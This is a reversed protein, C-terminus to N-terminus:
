FVPWLKRIVLGGVFSLGNAALSLLVGRRWSLREVVMSYFVAEAGFAWLEALAVMTSYRLPLEPLVFWVIPHTTLNAFFLLALRRPLSPQAARTGPLVLLGELVLTLAFARTWFLVYHM